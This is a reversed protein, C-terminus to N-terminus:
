ASRERVLEVSGDTSGNDVVVADYGDVSDLCRDLWPLANYTVVVVTVDDRM